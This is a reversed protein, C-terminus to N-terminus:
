QLFRAGSLANFAHSVATLVKVLNVFSVSKTCSLTPFWYILKSCSDNENNLIWRTEQLRKDQM